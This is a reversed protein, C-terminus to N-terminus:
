SNMVVTGYRYVLVQMNIMIVFKCDREAEREVVTSSEDITDLGGAARGENPVLGLMLDAEIPEDKKWLSVGLKKPELDAATASVDEPDISSFSDDLELVLVLVLTLELEFVSATRGVAPEFSKSITPAM